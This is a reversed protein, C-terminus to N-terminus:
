PPAYTAAREGGAEGGGVDLVGGSGIFIAGREREGGNGSANGGDSLSLAYAEKRLSKIYVHLM